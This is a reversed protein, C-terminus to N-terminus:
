RKTTPQKPKRIRKPPQNAGENRAKVFRTCRDSISEFDAIAEPILRSLGAAYERWGIGKNPDAAMEPVVALWLEITPVLKDGVKTTSVLHQRIKKTAEVLEGFAAKLEGAAQDPTPDTFLKKFMSTDGGVAYPLLKIDFAKALCQRHKGQEMGKVANHIAEREADSMMEFPRRLAQLVPSEEGLAERLMRFAEAYAIFRDCTDSSQRMEAHCWDNWTRATPFSLGCAQPKEKRRGSGEFGLRIKNELLERGLDEKDEHCQRFSANVSVLLKRARDFEHSGTMIEVGDPEVTVLAATEAVAPKTKAKM